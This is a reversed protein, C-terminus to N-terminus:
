PIGMGTIRGRLQEMIAIGAAVPTRLHDTGQVPDGQFLYYPKVRMRLLLRNLREIIAAESNVGRLLVTQNGLPIGADALKTCAAIAAETVEKPHNFHTNIYLPHYLDSSCVDSSWDRLSRTHRRRSSFFFFFFFCDGSIFFFLM